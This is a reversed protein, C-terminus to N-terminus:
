TDAGGNASKGPRRVGVHQLASLKVGPPEVKHESMFDRVANANARRDLLDFARNDIVFRMFADPDALSASYRVTVYATGHKSAVNQVGHTAMFESLQGELVEQVIRLDHDKEEFKRKLAQRVDRLEIYQEIKRDIDMTTM